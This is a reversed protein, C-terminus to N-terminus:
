GAMVTEPHATKAEAVIPELVDALTSGTATVITGNTILPRM